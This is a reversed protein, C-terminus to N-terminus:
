QAIKWQSFSLNKRKQLMFLYVTNRFGKYNTTLYSTILSNTFTTFAFLAFSSPARACARTLSGEWRAFLFSFLQILSFPLLALATPSLFTRAIEFFTPSFFFFTPSKGFFTPSFKSFRRRKRLFRRLKTTISAPHTHHPPCRMSVSAEQGM